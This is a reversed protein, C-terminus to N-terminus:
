RGHRISWRRSYARGRFGSRSGSASHRRVEDQPRQLEQIRVNRWRVQLKPDGKVAHVQLGIFGRTDKAETYTACPVGNVFTKITRGVCEVRFKNWQNDRFAARAVPDEAVNALWCRERGEGYIGGSTGTTENSIEVQDGYVRGAPNTVKVQKGNREITQTNETEYVHSRVQVGSNLAPDNKVEFELIFDSYERKTCLFTNPSKEVTTGVICGDEVHYTAVGSRVEWGDLSRGDFLDTWGAASVVSAIGLVLLASVTVAIRPM